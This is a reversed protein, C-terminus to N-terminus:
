SKELRGHVERALFQRMAEPPPPTLMSVIIIVLIVIPAGCLASSTLPFITSALPFARGFLPEAFTIVMGTLMGSVVGYGNARGWWIGLLFAPFITNGALAFATATIEAIM